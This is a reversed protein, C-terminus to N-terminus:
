LGLEEHTVLAAKAAPTGSADHHAGTAVDVLAGILRSTVGGTQALENNAQRETALATKLSENETIVRQFEAESHIKGTLFLYLGIALVILAGGAGTIVPYVGSLNVTGAKAAAKAV